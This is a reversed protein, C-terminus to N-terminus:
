TSEFNLAKLIITIYAHPNLLLLPPWATCHSEAVKKWTLQWSKQIGSLFPPACLLWFVHYLGSYLKM